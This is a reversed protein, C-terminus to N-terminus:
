LLQILLRFMNDDNDNDPLPTESARVLRLTEVASAPLAYGSGVGQVCGRM